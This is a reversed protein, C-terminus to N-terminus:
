SRYVIQIYNLESGTFKLGSEISRWIPQLCVKCEQAYRTCYFQHFNSLQGECNMILSLAPTSGLVMFSRCHAFNRM